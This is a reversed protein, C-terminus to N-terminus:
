VKTKLTRPDGAPTLCDVTDWVCRFSDFGGMEDYMQIIGPHDDVAFVVDSFAMLREMAAHKYKEPSFLEGPEVDLFWIDGKWRAEEIKRGSLSPTYGWQKESLMRKLSEKGRGFHRERHMILLEGGVAWPLHAALWQVTAARGVEGRSTIAVLVDVDYIEALAKVLMIGRTIPVDGDSTQGYEYFSHTYTTLDGAALASTDVYKKLRASSDVICGDLDYVGIRKGVLYGPAYHELHESMMVLNDCWFAFVLLYFEIKCRFAM